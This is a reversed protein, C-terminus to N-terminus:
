AKETYSITIATKTQGNMSAGHLEMHKLFAADVAPVYGLQHEGLDGSTLELSREQDSSLKVFVAIANPDVPNTPERRLVLGYGPSLSGIIKRGNGQAFNGVIRTNFSKNM